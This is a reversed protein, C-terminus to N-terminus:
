YLSISFLGNVSNFANLIEGIPTYYKNDSCIGGAGAGRHIGAAANHSAFIPAGSDGGQTCLGARHVLTTVTTNSSPSTMAKAVYTAHLRGCSGGENAGGYSGTRAGSICVPEGVVINRPVYQTIPHWEYYQPPALGNLGNQAPGGRVYMAGAMNWPETEIVMADVPYVSNNLSRYAFGPIGGLFMRNGNKNTTSWNWGADTCHGATLIYLTNWPIRKVIFGATCALSGYNNASGRLEIGGRIPLNCSTKNCEAELMPPSDYKIYIIKDGFKAEIKNLVQRHNEGLMKDEGPMEVEVKNVDTMIGASIPWKGNGVDDYEEAIATIAEKTHWLEDWSYEVPVIDVGEIAGIREAESLVIQRSTEGGDALGVQIRGEDSMWVGGFASKPLVEILAEQLYGGRGVWKSNLALTSIGSFSGEEGEKAHALNSDLPIFLSCICISLASVLVITGRRKNNQRM